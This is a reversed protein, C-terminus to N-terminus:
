GVEGLSPLGVRKRATEGRFRGSEEARASVKGNERSAHPARSLAPMSSALAVTHKGFRRDLADIGENVERWADARLAAGFLDPQIHAADSLGGLVIGTARYPTGPVFLADFREALIALIESAANTAQSLDCELGRTRFDQQKLFVVVRRAGLGHRRAKICANEVNKSLEAFVRARSTSPPTFTKTKSISQAPKASASFPLASIGRLELWIEQFPKSLMRRVSAEDLRALDLATTIGRGTLFASTQPGIGWIKGVPLEALFEHARNGPIMTFGNPKKWNSGTKALVKTPGIGVSFSMGLESRLDAQIARGIEEYSRGLPRRLGTLDAFCEDISYEEVLPTFRRVIAFMRLSVLSYTEYDSPLIVVTPCVHRAESIKMGRTIGARKAEPSMASAIGREAGTIVPRGRLSPNKAIECSVFFSDGDVHLIAKPFPHISLPKHM